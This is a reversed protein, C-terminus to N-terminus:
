LPGPSRYGRETTGTVDRDGLRARWRWHEGNDWTEVELRIRDGVQVPWPERLPLFAQRWSPAGTGPLNGLWRGPSLEAEFMGAFGTIEGRRVVELEADGRFSATQVTHLDIEGLAAAPGLWEDAGIRAYWLLNAAEEALPSPDFGPVGQRWVALRRGPDEPAAPAAFLRVRAPVLAAGPELLSGRAHLVAGIIGEELGFNGLTETVLVSARHSLWLQYSLGAHLRIRDGVGSANVVRRAIELVESVEVADVQAAGARACLVALLGTGTGIDLVRDGPEVTAAIAEAYADVRHRDSLMNGHYELLRFGRTPYM